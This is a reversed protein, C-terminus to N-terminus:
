HLFHAVIRNTIFVIFKSKDNKKFLDDIKLYLKNLRDSIYNKGEKEKYARLKEYTKIFIEEIEVILSSKLNYLDNEDENDGENYEENDDLLNLLNNEGSNEKINLNNKEEEVKKTFLDNYIEILKSFYLILSNLFLNELIM